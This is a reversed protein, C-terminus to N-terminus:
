APSGAQQVLHGLLDPALLPQNALVLATIKSACGPQGIVNGQVLDCGLRRLQGLQGPREVGEAVTRLGLHRALDIIGALFSRQQADHTSTRSL